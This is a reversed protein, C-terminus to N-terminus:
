TRKARSNTLITLWTHKRFEHPRPPCPTSSRPDPHTTSHFFYSLKEKKPEWKHERRGRQFM